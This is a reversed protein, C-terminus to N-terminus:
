LREYKSSSDTPNFASYLTSSQNVEKNFNLKYASKVKGNEDYSEKPLKYWFENFIASQIEKSPKQLHKQIYSEVFSNEKGGYIRFLEAKAFTEKERFQKQRRRLILKSGTCLHSSQDLSPEQAQFSTGLRDM